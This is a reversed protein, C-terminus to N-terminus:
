YNSCALHSFSNIAKITIIASSIVHFPQASRVLFTRRAAAAFAVAFQAFQAGVRTGVSIQPDVTALQVGGPVLPQAVSVGFFTQFAVFVAAGGAVAMSFDVCLESADFDLILRDCM